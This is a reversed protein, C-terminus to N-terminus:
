RRAARLADGQATTSAFRSSSATRVPLRRLGLLLQPAKGNGGDRRWLLSGAEPQVKWGALASGPALLSVLLIARRLLPM